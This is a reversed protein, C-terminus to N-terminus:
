PYFSTYRQFNEYYKFLIGRLAYFNEKRFTSHTFEFGMEKTLNM